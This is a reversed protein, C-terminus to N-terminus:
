PGHPVPVSREVTRAFPHRLRLAARQKSPARWSAYDGDRFRVRRAVVTGARTVEGCSVTGDLWERARGLQEHLAEVKDPEDYAFVQVECYDGVLLFCLEDDGWQLVATRPSVSSRLTVLVWYGRHAVDVTFGPQRSWDRMVLDIMERELM